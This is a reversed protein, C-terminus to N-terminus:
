FHKGILPEKGELYISGELYIRPQSTNWKDVLTFKPILVIFQFLFM